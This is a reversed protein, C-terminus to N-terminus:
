LTIALNPSAVSLSIASLRPQGIFRTVGLRPSSASILRIRHTPSFRSECVPRRMISQLTFDQPGYLYICHLRTQFRLMFPHDAAVTLEHFAVSSFHAPYDNLPLYKAYRSCVSVVNMLLYPCRLIRHTYIHSRQLQRFDPRHLTSAVDIGFKVPTNFSLCLSCTRQSWGSPRFLITASLSPNSVPCRILFGLCSKRHRLRRKACEYGACREVAALGPRIQPPAQHFEMLHKLSNSIPVSIPAPIWTGSM